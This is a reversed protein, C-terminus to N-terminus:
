SPLSKIFVITQIQKRGAAPQTRFEVYLGRKLDSFGHLLTGLYVCSDSIEYPVGNIVVGHHKVSVSTVHGHRPRDPSAAPATTPIALLIFVLVSIVLSDSKDFAKIM